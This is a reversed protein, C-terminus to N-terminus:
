GARQERKRAAHYCGSHKVAVLQGTAAALDGDPMGHGFVKVLGDPQLRYEARRRAQEGAAVPKHCDACKISIVREGTCARRSRGTVRCLGSRWGTRWRRRLGPCTWNGPMSVLGVM